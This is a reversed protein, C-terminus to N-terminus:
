VIVWASFVLVVVPVLMTVVGTASVLRTSGAGVRMRVSFGTAMRTVTLRAVVM